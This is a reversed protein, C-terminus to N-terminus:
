YWISYILYISYSSSYNIRFGTSTVNTIWGSANSQGNAKDNRVYSSKTSNNEVDYLVARSATDSSTYVYQLLIYKPKATLGTVDVYSTSGGLSLVSSTQGDANTKDPTSFDINGGGNGSQCRFLAM